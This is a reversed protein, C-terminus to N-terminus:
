SLWQRWRRAKTVYSHQLGGDHPRGADRESSLGGGGVWAHGAQARDAVVGARSRRPGSRRCVRDGRPSFQFRGRGEFRSVGSHIAGFRAADRYCGRPERRVRGRLRRRRSEAAILGYLGLGAAGAGLGWAVWKAAGRIASPGGGAGSDTSTGPSEPGPTTAIQPAGDGAGGPDGAASAATGAPTATPGSHVQVGREHIPALADFSERGTQNPRVVASRHVPVFGPALLDITITGTTLILPGQLPLTGRAVGDIHVEAGASGGLISSRASANPSRRWRRLLRQVTRRWDLIKKAELAETLHEFAPVWRGLAQEALGIQAIVRPSKDTEYAEQLKRLAEADKGQRRLGVAEKILEAADAAIVSQPVALVMAAVAVAAAVGSWRARPTARERQKLVGPNM